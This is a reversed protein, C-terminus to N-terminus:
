AQLDLATGLFARKETSQCFSTFLLRKAHGFRVNEPQEIFPPLTCSPTGAFGPM